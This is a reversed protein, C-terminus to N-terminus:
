GSKWDYEWMEVYNYGMEILTQKRKQTKEYLEGFTTHTRTNIDSSNFKIPNGHWFDGHFEYITNTEVCFGDARWSTGPIKYEGGNLAHQIHIKHETMMFELWKIAMDSYGKHCCIPCGRQHYIHNAPTQPFYENCKKCFISIKTHANVYVVEDYGYKDEHVKIAKEIFEEKTLSQKEIMSLRGCADCGNGALHNNPTQSFYENCKKCFIKVETKDNIYIVEEYGYIGEHFNTAEIIFEEITKRRMDARSLIGCTPCGKGSLHNGASQSFYENCKKCFIDIYTDWNIYDVKDYGYIGEHFNTAEIIFQETTKKQKGIMSLIGCAPCGRGTLHSAPTQPFYEKCSKCFINVCTISNIYDVKEYGYIGKHVENAKEIFEEKTCRQKVARSLIGCTPCGQKSNTHKAPTQSFYNNCAKCFISIKTHANIYEVKKYGYKDEHVKTAEIIFQETTKKRTM